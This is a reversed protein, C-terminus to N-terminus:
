MNFFYDMGRFTVYYQKKYESYKVTCQENNVDDVVFDNWGVKHQWKSVEAYFSNCQGYSQYVTIYVYGDYARAYGQWYAPANATVATDNSSAFSNFTSACFSIAATLAVFLFLKKM